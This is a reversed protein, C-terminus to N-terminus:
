LDWGKKIRICKSDEIGGERKCKDKCVDKHTHIIGHACMSTRGIKDKCLEHKNCIYEYVIRGM